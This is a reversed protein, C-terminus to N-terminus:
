DVVGESYGGDMSRGVYYHGGAFGLLRNRTDYILLPLDGSEEGLRHKYASPKREAKSLHHKDATYYIWKVQGLVVSEKTGDVEPFDALDVSQDGGEIFLQTGAENSALLTDGDFEIHTGDRLTIKDLVGLGALHTHEHIAVDLEEAVSPRGHFAEALDAATDAPNSKLPRFSTEKAQGTSVLLRADDYGMRVYRTGGAYRLERYAIPKGRRDTTFAVLTQPNGFLAWVTAMSRSKGGKKAAIERAFRSRAAAPTAHIVARAKDFDGAMEGKLIRLASVYEGLGAAGTDAPNYQRTRV